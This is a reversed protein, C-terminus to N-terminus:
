TESYEGRMRPHDRTSRDRSGTDGTNGACAPTIGFRFYLSPAAAPIGRAHPPSGQGVRRTVDQYLYEGRMRPHDKYGATIENKLVTNGACAPTIGRSKVLADQIVQIGRAHPPSGQPFVVLISPLRYEGRMRPHDWFAKCRVSRRFTNGACAPTIGTQVPKSKEYELIGRAHPPSGMFPTPAAPWRLYEGRM